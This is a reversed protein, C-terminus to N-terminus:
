DMVALAWAHGALERAVAVVATPRNKTRAEFAEWRANLRRNARDARAVVPAPAKAWRAQMARSTRYPKKHHWAAEVLLRRAHGNGTKTIGGQARSAGSSYESPVLGLYSGIRAGTLRHWDGIEVALAFGTM